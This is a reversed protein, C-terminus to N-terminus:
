TGRRASDRDDLPPRLPEGVRHPAARLPGTVFEYAAAAVAEPLHETPQLRATPTVTLAHVPPDDTM